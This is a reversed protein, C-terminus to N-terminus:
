QKFFRRGRHAFKGFATNVQPNPSPDGADFHAMRVASRKKERGVHEVWGDIPTLVL